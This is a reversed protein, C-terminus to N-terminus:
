LAFVKTVLFFMIVYIINAILVLTYHKNWVGKKSKM